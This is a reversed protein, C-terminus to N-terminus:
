PHNQARRAESFASIVRSPTGDGNRSISNAISADRRPRPTTASAQRGPQPRASPHVPRRIEHVSRNRDHRTEMLAGCLGTEVGRPSSSRRDRRQLERDVTAIDNFSLQEATLLQKMRRAANLVEGDFDSALLRLRKAIRKALPEHLASM